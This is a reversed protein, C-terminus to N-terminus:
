ETEFGSPVPGDWDDVAVADVRAREPGRRCWAVLAAVAAEDGCAIVEVSGDALNRAVGTVGLRQAQRQASARYWVGQVKGSVICRKAARAM